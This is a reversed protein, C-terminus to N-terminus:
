FRPNEQAELGGGWLFASQGKPLDLEMIRTYQTMKGREVHIYSWILLAKLSNM